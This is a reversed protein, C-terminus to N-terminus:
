YGLRLQSRFMLGGGGEGGGTNTEKNQAKGVVLAQALMQVPCFSLGQALITNAPALYIPFNDLFQFVMQINSLLFKPVIDEFFISKVWYM